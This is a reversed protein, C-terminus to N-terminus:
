LDLELLGHKRAIWSLETHAVNGLKRRIVQTRNHVTKRKVGQAEAVEESSEGRALRVLINLEQETLLERPDGGEDASEAEFLREAVGEMYYRRGAAVRRVAEVTEEPSATKTVYGAVGLHYMHRMTSLAERMSVVLVRADPRAERIRQLTEDDGCRDLSLDLIIVEDNDEPYASCHAVVEDATAVAGTVQIGSAALFDTLGARAVWHDDVIFARPAEPPAAVTQATHVNM